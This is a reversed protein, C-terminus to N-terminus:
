QSTTNRTFERWARASKYPMSYADLFINTRGKDQCAVEALTRGYLDKRKRKITAQKGACLDALSERSRNGYPQGREPADIDALRIKEQPQEDCRM